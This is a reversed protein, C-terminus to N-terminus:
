PMGKASDLWPRGPIECRLVYGFWWMRPCIAFDKMESNSIHLQNDDFPETTSTM